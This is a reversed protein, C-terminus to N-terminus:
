DRRRLLMGIGAVLATWLAWGALLAEGRTM